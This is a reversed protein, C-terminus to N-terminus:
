SILPQQFSDKLILLRCEISMFAMLILCIFPLAFTALVGFLMFIFGFMIFLRILMNRVIGTRIRVWLAFSWAWGVGGAWGETGRSGKRFGRIRVDGWGWSRRM